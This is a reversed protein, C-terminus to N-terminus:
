LCVGTPCLFRYWSYELGGRKQGLTNGGWLSGALLTVEEMRLPNVAAKVLEGLQM